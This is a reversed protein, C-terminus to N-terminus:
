NMITQSQVLDKLIISFLATLEQKLAIPDNICNQQATNASMTYAFENQAEQVLKEADNKANALASQAEQVLREADEM